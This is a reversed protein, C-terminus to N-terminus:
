CTAIPMTCFYTPCTVTPCTFSPCGATCGATCGCTYQGSAGDVRRLENPQLRSLTEKALSLKRTPRNKM